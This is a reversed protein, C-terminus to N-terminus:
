IRDKYNTGFVQNFEELSAYGIRDNDTESVIFAEEYSNCLNETCCKVSQGESFDCKCCGCPIYRKM